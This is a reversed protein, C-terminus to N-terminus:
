NVSRLNEIVSQGTPTRVAYYQVPLILLSTSGRDLQVHVRIILYDAVTVVYNSLSFGDFSIVMSKLFTLAIKVFLFVACRRRRLWLGCRWQMLIPLLHFVRILDVIRFPWTFVTKEEACNALHNWRGHGAWQGNKMIGVFNFLSIWQLTRFEFGVEFALCVSELAGAVFDSFIKVYFAHTHLACILNVGLWDRMHSGGVTRCVCAM